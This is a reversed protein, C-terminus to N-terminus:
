STCEVLGRRLRGGMAARHIRFAELHAANGTRRYESLLRTGERRWVAVVTQSVLPLSYHRQSTLENRRGTARPANANGPPENM